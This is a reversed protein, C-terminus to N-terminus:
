NEEIRISGSSSRVKIYDSTERKSDPIRVHGSRSQVDYFGAFQRPVQIRISGSSTRVDMEQVAQQKNIKVSGSTTEVTLFGEKQEINVSGSSARVDMDGSINFARISGSSSETNFAGHVNRWVQSGSSSRGEIIGQVDYAELKGSSTTLRIDQAELRNVLLSGSSTRLDVRDAKADNVILRNSSLDTQLFHLRSNPALAITLKQRTFDSLYFFGLRFFNKHTLDLTLSNNKIQTKVVREVVEPNMKGELEVYSQGTQSEIFEITVGYSSLVSIEQIEEAGFSWRQEYEDGTNLAKGDLGTLFIGLLGIGVLLSALRVLNKNTM